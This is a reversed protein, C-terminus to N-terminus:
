LTEYGLERQLPAIKDLIREVLEPNQTRWKQKKPLGKVISTPRDLLNRCRERMAGDFPLNLREFVEAFMEAPKEFIDEYRLHVWQAPPILRKATLALRNATIWQYACVEELSATNYDRWGPPLFFSWESFEGQNISVPEPSPGLFQTLGFHADQRWGDIMSSVNDRGDRQIFVFAASPFLSHLFAIRMTNICTKDVIRHSGLREFFFRSAAQRHRPQAQEAGAAESEWGNLSPGYLSNWFQPIEYGLSRLHPSASITEFTVTTGSRSCGVVFIPAPMKPNVLNFYLGRAMRKLEVLNKHRIEPDALKSLKTLSLMRLLLYWYLRNANGGPHGM